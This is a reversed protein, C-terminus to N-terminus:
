THKVCFRRVTNGISLVIAAGKKSGTGVLFEEGSGNNGEADGLNSTPSSTSLPLVRAQEGISAWSVALAANLITMSECCRGLTGTVEIASCSVIAVRSQGSRMDKSVGDGAFSEITVVLSVESSRADGMGEM